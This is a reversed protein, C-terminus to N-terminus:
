RTVAKQKAGLACAETRSEMRCFELFMAYLTFYVEVCEKAVAIHRLVPPLLTGFAKVTVVETGNAAPSKISMATAPM